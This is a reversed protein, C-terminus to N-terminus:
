QRICRGGGHAGGASSITTRWARFRRLPRCSIRHLGDQFKDILLDLHHAQLDLDMDVVVWAEFLLLLQEGTNGANSIVGGGCQQGEETRQIAEMRDFLHHGIGPEIGGNALRTLPCPLRRNGLRAICQQALRQVQRRHGGLPIVRDDGGEAISEQEIALSGHLHHDRTRALEQM